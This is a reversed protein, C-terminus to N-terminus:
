SGLSTAIRAHGSQIRVSYDIGQIEGDPHSLVDCEEQLRYSSSVNTVIADFSLRVEAMWTHGGFGIVASKFLFVENFSKPVSTNQFNSDGVDTGAKGLERVGEKELAGASTKTFM